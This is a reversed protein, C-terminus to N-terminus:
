PMRIQGVHNRLNPETLSDTLSLIFGQKQSADTMQILTSVMDSKSQLGPGVM